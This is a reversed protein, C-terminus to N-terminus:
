QAVEESGLLEALVEFEEVTDDTINGINEQESADVLANSIRTYLEDHGKASAGIVMFVNLARSLKNLEVLMEQYEGILDEVDSIQMDIHEQITTHCDAIKEEKTLEVEATVDKTDNM